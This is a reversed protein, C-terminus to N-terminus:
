EFDRLVNELHVNFHQLDAIEEEIETEEPSDGPVDEWKEQLRAQRDNVVKRIKRIVKKM